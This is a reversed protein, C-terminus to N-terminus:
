PIPNDAEDQREGKNLYDVLKEINIYYKKGSKCYVIKNQLCMERVANYSLGTEKAAERMTLMRPLEILM